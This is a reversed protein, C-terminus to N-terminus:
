DGALRVLAVWDQASEGPAPGLRVIGPGSVAVGEELGGGEAPNFWSVEFEGASGELDLRASGGSPVYVAYTQGAKALVYVGSDTSLHDASTMEPFPLYEHIFELAHRTMSWIQDRSRFDELDLDNNPYMYGFYWEIGWSGAM